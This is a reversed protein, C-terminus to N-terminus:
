GALGLLDFSKDPVPPRGLPLLGAPWAHPGSSLYGAGRYFDTIGPSPSAPPSLHSGHPKSVLWPLLLPSGTEFFYLLSHYLFIGWCQGKVEACVAQVPMVTCMPLPSQAQPECTHM